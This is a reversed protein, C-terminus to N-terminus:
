IDMYTEVPQEAAQSQSEDVCRPCVCKGFGWDVLKKQREKYGTKPDVYTVLLEEGERVDRIAIMTIRSLATREDLHRVSINPSCSHNLHSHLPYLGGHAELNLNMKGLGRLFADYDFLYRELEPQLPNKLIKSLKRKEAETKAPEDVKFARLYLQYAEKWSERASEPVHTTSGYASKFRQEMGLEAFGRVTEWDRELGGESGQQSALLLRSACQAWALIAVWERERAWKVLPISAPNRSPCLLPHCKASRTLCLRNCFQAPCPAAPCPITLASSLSTTCYGCVRSNKQLDFLEWEPALIFPDEKWLIEGQKIDESAVLGKGKKKDFYKVEVKSSLKSVDLGPILHSSPFLGVNQEEQPGSRIILGENQLMKRTRKESVTWDPHSSLLLGHIKSIGFAPNKSKLDTLSDRLEQDTPSTIM